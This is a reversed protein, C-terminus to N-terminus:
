PSRVWGTMVRLQRLLPLSEVRCRSSPLATRFDEILDSWEKDPLDWVAEPKNGNMAALAGTLTANDSSVM